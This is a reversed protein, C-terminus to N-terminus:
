RLLAHCAMRQHRRPAAFAKLGFDAQAAVVLFQPHAAAGIAVVCFLVLQLFDLGEPAVQGGQRFVVPLQM